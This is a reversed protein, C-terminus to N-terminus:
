ARAVKWCLIFRQMFSLKRKSLVYKLMEFLSQKKQSATYSLVPAIQGSWIMEQITQMDKFGDISSTEVELLYEFQKDSSKLEAKAKGFVYIGFERPNVMTKQKVRLTAKSFIEKTFGFEDLLEIPKDVEIYPISEYDNITRGKLSWEFAKAYGLQRVRQEDLAKGKKLFVYVAM